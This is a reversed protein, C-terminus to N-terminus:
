DYNYGLLKSFVICILSGLYNLSLTLGLLLFLLGWFSLFTPENKISSLRPKAVKHDDILLSLWVSSLWLQLLESSEAPNSFRFCAIRLRILKDIDRLLSDASRFQNHHFRRNQESWLSYIAAQWSLLLLKRWQRTGSFNRLSSLIPNYELWHLPFSLMQVLSLLGFTGLSAVGSSCTTELNLTPNAYYAHDTLKFVGNSCGTKQQVDISLWWGRSSNISQSEVLFGSRRTGLYQSLPKELWITSSNTSYKDSPLDNPCWIFQDTITLSTIHSFIRVQNESRAAPFVWHDKEWLEALTTNPAIGLSTSPEGRTFDRIRGFPSWNSSWFYVREGNGLSVKIWPYAINRLLILKNIM